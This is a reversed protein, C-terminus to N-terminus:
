ARSVSGAHVIRALVAKAADEDGVPSTFDLGEASLPSGHELLGWVPTGSGRYDSWKSPLYPNAAHSDGTVADNVILCDFKTTLNLFELYRVYPGVLVCEEIGLESARRRLEEPKTTFVHVRVRQRTPQDLKALAVLVDDLGRTAYFNGFYALHVIDEDLRYPHDVMAYFPSPLTPHPAIVAKARALAALKPSSCYGLMYELQNRNTFILEDALAYTIEECWVFSNESQPVPLRRRRLGARLRRLFPSKRVPTGRVENHIDRSLPDSFEAIWRVGPNDVKHAAALFHSAAFQARSYVWEYRGKDREWNQIVKLGEVAFREMSDWSAFYSPTRLAALRGVFPGSILDLSDDKERIRDMANSIVDVAAARARVRKAMVVSSTDAYPPFAYAVVLGRALHSNIRDYPVLATRSEDLLAVVRPHDEPHARLHDNIFAAQGRIRGRLLEATDGAAREELAALRTIVDLRQRVSFDFSTAPRSVSGERLVRYYVAGEAAPLPYFDIQRRVVVTMWFLVDEGSTLEVDYPIEKILRTAILKAANITTAVRLEGPASLQGAREVLMRNVHNQADLGQPGDDVVGAVPVVRETAHKLLIQLFGPSVYDDDDVFTTFRRSAAAIGANRARAAGAAGSRILRVTLAPHEARFAEVLEATGDPVGNLVIIIEFAAPALTQAALSDLCRGIHARGRSSPIVVSVGPGLDDVVEGLRSERDRRAVAHQAALEGAWSAVVAPSGPPGQRQWPRVASRASASGTDGSPDRNM